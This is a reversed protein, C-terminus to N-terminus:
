AGKRQVKRRTVPLKKSRSNISVVKNAQAKREAEEQALEDIERLFRKPQRGEFMWVTWCSRNCFAEGSDEYSYLTKKKERCYKCRGGGEIERKTKRQTGPVYVTLPMRGGVCNIRPGTRHSVPM